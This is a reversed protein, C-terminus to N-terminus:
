RFTCGLSNREPSGTGGARKQAVIVRPKSTSELFWRRLAPVRVLPTFVRWLGTRLMARAAWGLLPHERRRMLMTPAYEKAATKAGLGVTGGAIEDWAPNLIEVDFGASELWRIYEWQHFVQENIGKRLYERVTPNKRLFRRKSTWWPCFAEAAIVYVGGPDLIRHVHAVAQGPHPLHHLFSSSFVFSFQRDAFPLAEADVRCLPFRGHPWYMRRAVGMGSRASDNYDALVVHGGMAAFRHAAWGISGGLDLATKGRPEVYGPFVFGFQAATLKYYEDEVFPM